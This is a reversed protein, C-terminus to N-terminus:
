EVHLTLSFNMHLVALQLQLYVYYTSSWSDHLNVSHVSGKGFNRINIPKDHVINNTVEILNGFPHTGRTVYYFIVCGASFIDSSFTGKRREGYFDRFQLEPAMWNHSMQLENVSLSHSSWVGFDSLVVRAPATKSILVNSPKMSQHVFKMSHIYNLGKIIQHVVEEDSPLFPGQYQKNCVDLLTGACLEV